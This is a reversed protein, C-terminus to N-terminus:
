QVDGDTNQGTIQKAYDTMSELPIQNVQVLNLDGGPISNRDELGRVENISLVGDSLLTHYYNARAAMDGRMLGLIDFKFFHEKKEAPLLLKRNLEQEINTLWPSITHKAFFLDQQEQNSYKVDTSMQVLSPPVNFIRCIEEVQYRRTELAQATEPPIGVREYKLGAELIATAHASNLGHYKQDWTTSLRRYQEESLIKDTMLVGSMNGGSGFFSSGYSQAAYALGINEIHERIPSIGRFAEIALIDENYMPEDTREDIYIRRGNLQTAKVQTPAMLNLSKPRGNQDREILAYGAGHLLADSVIYQWFQFATYYANPENSCVYYAPHDMVREKIGGERRFLEVNLSAITSAIKHVCAYVASVAMAGDESIIVGSRTPTWPFFLSPDFSRKEEQQPTSFATRLRSLIGQQSPNAM